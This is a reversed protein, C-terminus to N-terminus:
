YSLIDLAHKREQERSNEDDNNFTYLSKESSTHKSPITINFSDTSREDITGGNIIALPKDACEAGDEKTNQLNSQLESDSM